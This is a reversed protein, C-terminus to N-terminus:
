GAKRQESEDGPSDITRIDDSRRQDQRRDGGCRREPGLYMVNSNTRRDPLVRRDIVSTRRNISQRLFRMVSWSHMIMYLYMAGLGLFGALMLSDPLQFYTGAIGVSVGLFAISALITVTEGVTFGALLFLHHLHERDAGFPPRRKLIRRTTMTVMDFLPLLVFWLATAPAIVRNEGQTFKIAFWVLAFGVFMSGSDGLFVSARSRWPSRCNFVLFGLMAAALIALLGLGNGNGFLVTAAMFGILAVLSLSGALGDLGDSMNVANVLGVAALLTFPVALAGLGLLNGGPELAGLDRLLIDAGYIMVLAAAAQVILKQVPTLGSHDDVIGAILLMMGALYFAGFNTWEAAKALGIGSVVMAAFVAIFIAPGGVLPIDGQHKKRANPRDVLNASKALPSLWKILGCTLLFAILPGYIVKLVLM